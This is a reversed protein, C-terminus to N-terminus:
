TAECNLYYTECNAQVPSMARQGRPLGEIAEAPLDLNLRHIAARLMRSAGVDGSTERELAGDLGFTEHWCKFTEWGLQSLLDLAPQEVYSSM